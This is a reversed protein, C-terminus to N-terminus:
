QDLHAATNLAVTPDRGSNKAIILDAADQELLRSEKLVAVPDGWGSQFGLM